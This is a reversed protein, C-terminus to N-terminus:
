SPANLKIFLLINNPAYGPAICASTLQRKKLSKKNLFIIVPDRKGTQVFMVGQLGLRKKVLLM